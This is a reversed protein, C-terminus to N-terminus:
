NDFIHDLVLYFVHGYTRTHHRDGMLARVNERTGPLHLRCVMCVLAEMGPIKERRVTFFDPIRLAALLGPLDERRFRTYSYASNDSMMNDLTWVPRLSRPIMGVDPPAKWSRSPQHLFALTCAFAASLCLFRRDRPTRRFAYAGILSVM